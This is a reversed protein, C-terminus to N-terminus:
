RETGEGRDPLHAKSPFARTWFDPMRPNKNEIQSFYASLGQSFSKVEISRWEGDGLYLRQISIELGM